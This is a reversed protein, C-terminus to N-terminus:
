QPTVFFGGILQTGSQTGQSFTIIITNESQHRSVSRGKGSM